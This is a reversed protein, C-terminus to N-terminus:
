LQCGIAMGGEDEVGVAEEGFDLGVGLEGCHEEIGHRRTQSLISDLCAWWPSVSVRLFAKSVASSRRHVCLPLDPTPTACMSGCPSHELREWRHGKEDANM